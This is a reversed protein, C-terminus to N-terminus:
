SHRRTRESILVPLWLRVDVFGNSFSASNAQLIEGNQLIRACTQFRHNSNKYFTSIKNKELKEDELNKKVVDVIEEKKKPDKAKETKLEEPLKKEEEIEQEQNLFQEESVLKTKDVITKM